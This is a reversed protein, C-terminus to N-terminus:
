YFKFRKITVVIHIKFNWFVVFNLLCKCSLLKKGKSVRGSSTRFDERVSVIEYRANCNPIVHKTPVPKECSVGSEGLGTIPKSPPNEKTKFMHRKNRRYEKGFRNEVILSRPTHHKRTVRGYQWDGKPYKFRVAQGVKPECNGTKPSLKRDHQFKQEAQRKKICESMNPVPQPKLM